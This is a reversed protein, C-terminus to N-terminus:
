AALIEIATNAQRVPAQADEVDFAAALRHGVLVIRNPNHEIALNVIKGFKAISEFGFPVLEPGVTIRFGDDMKVFVETLVADILQASHKCKRDPVRANLFQKDRTVTQADLGEM